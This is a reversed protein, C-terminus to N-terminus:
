SSIVFKGTTIDNWMNPNQYILPNLFGLRNKGKAILRDNVLAVISAVIPASASTGDVLIPQGRYAIAIKEGQAAIDPFARGNRNYKGM